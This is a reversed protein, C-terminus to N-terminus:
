DQPRMEVVVPDGVRVLGPLVTTGYVGACTGRTSGIVKLLRSDPLGSAPNVNVIICRSDRRDMRVVAAGIRVASGVWEDEEFPAGSDFTVVVNPRFRLENSPVDALTCLASVTSDSIISVPMADFAGRDLRMVRVATGMEAALRPDTVDYLGGDPTRVIVRSRDPRAPEGLLAVYHSMEPFERITHWPFGSGQSHPRVFAWRRDGALGAWSIDTSALAEGAMSKVPYRWLGSVTGAQM